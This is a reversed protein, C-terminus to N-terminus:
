RSVPDVVGADGGGRRTPEAVALMRGDGRFEIAAVAGIESASTGPDGPPVFTHGYRGLREGWRDIFAQEAVVDPTNRQSARPANVAEPLTMGFHIRNLLVQLVTTIITSGGPSGLALWPQGERRVITPSMSSRPRKGPQIRNPDGPVYELSFDTLENNLLFGRNPVVIGSGGTQEITLTYAVVDGSRDAVTLHTTSRGEVDAGASGRRTGACGTYDGDPQGPVVPKTAAQDLDITCARERAFGQSLLQRLPVHVFDRDGVYAARDAFARATAELYLHLTRVPTTRRVPLEELINLSEGVTSGGSSPPGMGYVDLGRYRVHTPPRFPATYDRLDAQRMEGPPVPLDTGQVVPPHQVTRAIQGALRGHYLWRVGRNGLKRYTDALDANVFRTGVRPAHGDTLFLRRTTRIAAFREANEKTQLRFTKDVRFGREALAAAPALADALPLTGWRRLARQWTLPTGPVGVSVGSTVLDPYFVYPDGTAPNIFADRDIRRPATERGDITAIRGTEADYHVFFGGGGIGASYPETVGLAAAVAVAADAATGGDRLIRLGIRTANPDVSSVAGGRGVAVPDKVLRNADDRAAVATVDAATAVTPATGGLAVAPPAAAALVALSAVSLWSLPRPSRSM